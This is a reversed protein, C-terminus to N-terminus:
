TSGDPHWRQVEILAMATHLLRSYISNEIHAQHWRRYTGDKLHEDIARAEQLLVWLNHTARHCFGDIGNATLGAIGFRQCAPCRCQELM